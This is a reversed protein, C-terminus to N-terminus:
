PTHHFVPLDDVIKKFVSIEEDKEEIERAQKEIKSSAEQAKVLQDCHTSKLSKFLEAKRKCDERLKEIEAKAEDLEECIGEM